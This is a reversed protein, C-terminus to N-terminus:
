NGPGVSKDNPGSQNAAEKTEVVSSNEEAARGLLESSLQKKGRVGLDQLAAVRNLLSGKGSSLRNHATDYAGQALRLHRGVEELSDVFGVFKDHLEGGRRAIELANQNQKEYRWINNITRLTVLLTSPSVLLINSDFAQAFLESDAEIATMFAGEIPVFLLVFDLSRLNPLEEYGKEALGKIHRRLSNLHEKLAMQRQAENDASCYREYAVLSVKADVVVDKQEPLHIIVDPLYLRGDDNRHSSQLQYEYGARLGSQELIRTLVLEGWNGQTKTESKLANTLNLADESMQLNLKKLHEIQEQLGRRDKAERDYVDDVRQRFEKLQLQLPQLMHQMKQQQQDGFRQSNADLTQQALQSFEIQLQKRSQELQALKEQQAQQEMSLRTNTASLESQLQSNRQQLQQLEDERQFLEEEVRDMSILRERAGSLEIQAQLNQQSLTELKEGLHQQQLGLAQKEQLWQHQDGRRQWQQLLMALVMGALGAGLMLMWPEVTM